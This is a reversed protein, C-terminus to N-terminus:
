PRPWGALADWSGEGDFPLWEVQFPPGDGGPAHGTAAALLGQPRQPVNVPGLGVVIGVGDDVFLSRALVDLGGEFPGAVVDRASGRARATSDVGVAGATEPVDTRVFTPGPTTM